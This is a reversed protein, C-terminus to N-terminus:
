FSIKCDVAQESNNNFVRLVIEESILSSDSSSCLEVLESDNAFGSVDSDEKDCSVILQF